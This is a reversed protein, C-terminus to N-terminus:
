EKVEVSDIFLPGEELFQLNIPRCYVFLCVEGM